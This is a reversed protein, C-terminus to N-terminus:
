REEDKKWRYVIYYNVDFTVMEGCLYLYKTAYTGFFWHTWCLSGKSEENALQGVTNHRDMASLRIELVIM